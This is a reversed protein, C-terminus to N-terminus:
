DHIAGRLQQTNSGYHRVTNLAARADGALLAGLIRALREAWELQGARDRVLDQRIEILAHALGRQTGHRYLCDGELQGTYPVNEGIVLGPEARLAALLLEALRPDADWLIGAHWPRPRGRWNETFSHISLIAPPHGAAIAADIAAGIAAHYPAYFYNIRFQREAEDHDANGPVVAVDSLRMILTPDDEGRNTDILLRSFNALLAPAGLLRATERTVEDAGIDYGIHRELQARALGLTGYDEPLANSAHDCVILVGCAVDGAVRACPSFASGQAGPARDDQKMMARM